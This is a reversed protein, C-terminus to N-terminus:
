HVIWIEWTTDSLSAVVYTRSGASAGDVDPHTITV